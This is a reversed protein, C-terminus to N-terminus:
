LGEDNFKPREHEILEIIKLYSKKRDFLLEACKRANHGCSIRLEKDIMLVQIGNALENEDNNNCNIGMEFIEVLNRYEACEQTNLVPLGSAAYDAHKNIISQAAGKTIPNVVIDCRSLLGCMIDYPLRGTFLADVNKKQTYVEFEEKRPGDGMVIFKPVIQGKSKLLSLADIVCTIDYSAGLTGCYALWVDNENKEIDNTTNKNVNNAFVTLDTGLFVTHTEACKINVKKARRAYTESVAVIEDAAAYIKDAIYNFPYFVIDSIVPVNFVMRFAEPWLDQIDLVFKVNKERCYKATYYPATLSPIACYIIDPKKRRELYKKVNNGWFFHSYFRKLSVNKTYGPEELFTITFPWNYEANHRHMKKDHCFTSTVIEVDHNNSLMNALYLFRDNDSQAFTGGFNCIIVIDM